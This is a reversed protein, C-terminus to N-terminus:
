KKAIPECCAAGGASALRLEKVPKAETKKDADFTFNLEAKGGKVAAKVEQSGYLEHWAVFTYEGDPLDKTDISYKGISKEDAASVAFYPNDVVVVWAGMWPHVDCKVKIQEVAKFPEFKKAGTTPQGINFATNDISLSHVNHLFPDSNKVEFPQGVMVGIVHPSYVCGKQDLVAPETPVKGLTKGEPTKVYVVVNALEGKDGAVVKEEYVPDKHQKACDPVSKIATIEPMEPIKGKLTVSGTVQGFSISGMGASLALACVWGTFKM